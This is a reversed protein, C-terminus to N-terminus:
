YGAVYVTQTGSTAAYCYNKIRISMAQSKHGQFTYVDGAPIQVCTGLAVKNTFSTLTSNVAFQVDVNGDNKVSLEYVYDDGLDVQAATSTVSIKKGYGSGIFAALAVSTLCVALVTLILIKKM